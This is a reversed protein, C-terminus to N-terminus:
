LGATLDKPSALFGHPRSKFNNCSLKKNDCQQQKSAFIWIPSAPNVSWSSSHSLIVLWLDKVDQIKSKQREESDDAPIRGESRRWRERRQRGGHPTSAPLLTTWLPSHWASMTLLCCCNRTVLMMQNERPQTFLNQCWKTMQKLADTCGLSSARSQLLPLPIHPQGFILGAPRPAKTVVVIRCRM